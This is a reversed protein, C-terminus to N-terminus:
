CASRAAGRGLVIEELGVDGIEAVHDIEVGDAGGADAHADIRQAAGAHMVPRADGLAVADIEGHDALLDIRREAEHREVPVAADAHIRGRGVGHPPQDAHLVLVVDGEGAVGVVIAVADDRRALAQHRGVM